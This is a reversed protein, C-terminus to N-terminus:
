DEPIYDYINNETTIGELLEVSTTTVIATVHPHWESNLYKILPAAANLLAMRQQKLEDTSLFSAKERDYNM